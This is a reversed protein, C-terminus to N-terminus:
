PKVAWRRQHEDESSPPTVGRAVAEGLQELEHELRRAELLATEGVERLFRRLEEAEARKQERTTDPATLRASAANVFANQHRTFVETLGQSYRLASGSAISWAELLAPVLSEVPLSDDAPAGQQRDFGEALQTMTRAYVDLLSAAAGVWGRIAEASDPQGQQSSTSGSYFPDPGTSTM